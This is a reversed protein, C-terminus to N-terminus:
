RQHLVCVCAPALTHCCHMCHRAGHALVFSFVTMLRWSSYTSKKPSCEKDKVPHKTDCM